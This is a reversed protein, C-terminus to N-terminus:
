SVRRGEVWTEKLIQTKADLRLLDARLGVQLRGRDTLGVAQAPAYSVCAFARPLDQWIDALRLTATLLSSPVYDSSLVDLLGAEALTIAAVNGSHSGGRVLNPAGMMNMIGAAKCAEAAALTTPFEAVTVGYRASAEVDGLETDDHSALPAGLRKAAQLTAAHNQACFRASIEMLREVHAAFGAEDMKCYQRYKDLDRFQRQGPTHDMLSILGINDEPNFREFDEALTVSCIEARIHVKHSIRLKGAEALAKLRTVAERAYDSEAKDKLRGRGIRLADFVTTIGVSALEADHAIIATDIPWFVQPRPELHNELNDTHLEVLGPAILDGQLDIGEELTPGSFIESIKGDRLRINGEIVQAQLILRANKLLTM